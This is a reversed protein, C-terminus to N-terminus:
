LQSLMAEQAPVALAAKSHVLLCKPLILAAMASLRLLLQLVDSLRLLWRRSTYCIPKPYDHTPM